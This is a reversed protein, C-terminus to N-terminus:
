DNLNAWGSIIISTEYDKDNGCIKRFVWDLIGEPKEQKICEVEYGEKKYHNILHPVLDEKVDYEIIKRGGSRATKLIIEDIREIEKRIEENSYKSIENRLEEINM